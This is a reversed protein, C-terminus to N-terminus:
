RPPQWQKDPPHGSLSLLVIETCSSKVQVPVPVSSPLLSNIRRIESPTQPSNRISVNKFFLSGGGRNEFTEFQFQSMETKKVGEGGGKHSM